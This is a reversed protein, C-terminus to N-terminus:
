AAPASQGLARRRRLLAWAITTALVAAGPALLLVSALVLWPAADKMANDFGKLAPGLTAGLVSEGVVRMSDQQSPNLKAPVSLALYLSDLRQRAQTTDHAMAELRHLVSDRHAPTGQKAERWLAFLMAFLSDRGADTLTRASPQVGEVPLGFQARFTADSAHQQRYGLITLAGYFTIGLLWLFAIRRGSWARLGM